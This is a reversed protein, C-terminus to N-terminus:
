TKKIYVVSVVEQHGVQTGQRQGISPKDDGWTPWRVDASHDGSINGFDTGTGQVAVRNDGM